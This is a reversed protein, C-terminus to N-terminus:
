RGEATEATTVSDLSDDIIVSISAGKGTLKRVAQEVQESTTRRVVAADEPSLAMERARDYLSKRALGLYYEGAMSRLRAWGVQVDFVEDGGCVETAIRRPPPIRVVYSSTAPSFGISASDVQSLDVGYLLRVPAEVTASAIGRWHDHTANAEVTTQVEATVLQMRAITRAVEALPRARGDALLQERVAPNGLARREMSRMVATLGAFVTCALAALVLPFSLTRLSPTRM